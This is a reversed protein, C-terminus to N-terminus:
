FRTSDRPLSLNAPRMPARVRGYAEITRAELAEHEFATWGFSVDLEVESPAHRLLLVHNARAFSIADSIRPVIRHKALLPVLERLDVADGQIVADVDTTMRRVGRAIVAIGGIIM